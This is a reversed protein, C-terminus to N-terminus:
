QACEGGVFVSMAGVAARVGDAVAELEFADLADALALLSPLACAVSAAWSGDDGVGAQWADLAADASLLAAHVSVFARVVRQARAAERVLDAETEVAELRREIADAAVSDAAAVAVATSAVTSRAREYPTSGCGALAAYAIVALACLAVRGSSERDSPTM